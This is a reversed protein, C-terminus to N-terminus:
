RVGGRLRAAVKTLLWDVVFLCIAVFAFDGRFSGGFATPVVLRGSLAAPILSGLTTTLNVIHIRLSRLGIPIANVVILGILAIAALRLLMAAFTVLGAGVAAGAGMAGPGERLVERSSDRPVAIYATDEYPRSEVPRRTLPADGRPTPRRLTPPAVTTSGGRRGMMTTPPEAVPGGAAQQRPPMRTTRPEQQGRGRVLMTTRPEGLPRIPMSPSDGPPMDLSALAAAVDAEDEDALETGGEAIARMRATESEWQARSMTSAARQPVTRRLHTGAQEILEDSDDLAGSDQPVEPKPEAQRVVTPDRRTVESM